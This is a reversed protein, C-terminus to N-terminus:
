REPLGRDAKDPPITELDKCCPCEREIVRAMAMPQFAKSIETFAQYKTLIGNDFSIHLDRM